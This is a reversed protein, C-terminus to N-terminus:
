FLNVRVGGSGSGQPRSHVGHGSGEEAGERPAEFTTRRRPNGGAEAVAQEGQFLLGMQRLPSRAALNGGESLLQARRLPTVLPSVSCCFKPLPLSRCTLICAPPLPLTKEPQQPDSPSPHRKLLSESFGCSSPSVQQTPCKPAPYSRAAVGSCRLHLRLLKPKIEGTSLGVIAMVGAHRGRRTRM